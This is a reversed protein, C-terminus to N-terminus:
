VTARYNGLNDAVGANKSKVPTAMGTDSNLTFARIEIDFSEIDSLTLCDFDFQDGPPAKSGDPVFTLTRLVVSPRTESGLNDAALVHTCCLICTLTAATKVHMIVGRYILGLLSKTTSDNMRAAGAFDQRVASWGKRREGASRAQTRRSDTRCM